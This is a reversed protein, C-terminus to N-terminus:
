LFKNIDWVWWRRLMTEYSPLREYDPSRSLKRRERFVWENRILLMIFISLGLAFAATWILLFLTDTNM